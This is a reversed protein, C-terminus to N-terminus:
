ARLLTALCASNSPIGALPFTKGNLECRGLRIATYSKVIAQSYIPQRTYSLLDRTKQVAGRPLNLVRIFDRPGASYLAIAIRAPQDPHPRIKV